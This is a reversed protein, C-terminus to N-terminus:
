VSKRSCSDTNADYVKELRELQVLLEEIGMANAEAEYGAAAIEVVAKLMQPLLAPEIDTPKLNRLVPAIKALLQIAAATSVKALNLQRDRMDQIGELFAQQQMLRCQQLDWAVAREKWQWIKSTTKWSPPLSQISSLLATSNPVKLCEKDQREKRYVQILTRSSGLFYYNQLRNFWKEPEDPQREWAPQHLPILGSKETV